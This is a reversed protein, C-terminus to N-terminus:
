IIIWTLLSISQIWGFFGGASTEAAAVSKEAADTVAPTASNTLELISDSLSKTNAKTNEM